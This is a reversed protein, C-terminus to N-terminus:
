VNIDGINEGYQKRTKLSVPVGEVLPITITDIIHAESRLSLSRLRSPYRVRIVDDPELAPNPVAELEVQYPLGLSKRLLVSAASVAQGYTTIFPSAYFRPVPGFPGGYRTPSNPNRDAVAAYLPPTTDTGEGTAVVVNYIGERTIARSMKVLVGNSGADITWSPAGTVSAVTRVVFVGRYDFYGVKGLSTVLDRLTEYREREAVITRGLVSDRVGTDDWEILASPYVETILTAVVQGRTLSSSFQRPTLFRGAVIGAMRDSGSIDVAGGPTEEQEPADIRFYGLGVYETQGNGYSLGREVFIENGYPTLLGDANKPWEYSTTLSLTARIDATAACQVDGSVIPIEVGTPNTGTQFTECVRARFVANHSGRLTALFRASVARM